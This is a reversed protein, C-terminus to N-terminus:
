WTTFFGLLVIEGRFQSLRVPKGDLDRLEFDPAVNKYRAAQLNNEALIERLEPTIRAPVSSGSLSGFAANVIGARSIDPAMFSVLSIGIAIVVISITYQIIKLKQLNNERTQNKEPCRQQM